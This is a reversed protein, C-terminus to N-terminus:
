NIALRLLGAFRGLALGLIMGRQGGGAENRQMEDAYVIQQTPHRAAHEIACAFAYPELQDGARLVSVLDDDDARAPLERSEHLQWKTYTQAQLSHRSQRKAMAVQSSPM